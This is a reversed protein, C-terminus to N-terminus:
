DKWPERCPEGSEYLTLRRRLNTLLGDRGRQEAEALARRQREVAEDFRGLEAYAMALTEAHELSERERLVQTALEVARTGDRGEDVPCTALVRALLHRLELDGPLGRLSEELGRRATACRDGSLLAMARGFHAEAFGPELELFRTYEAAAEAYRDARDLARALKLRAHPNMPDEAILEEFRAFSEDGRGVMGLASALELRGDTGQPDLDVALQLHRVASELQGLRKLEVGLHFHADRLDPALAVAERFARIAEDSSALEAALTGYGLFFQPDRLGRRGAVRFEELAGAADDASQLASTLGLIVQVEGPDADLARRYLAIAEEFDGRRLARTAQLHDTALAAMSEQLPDPFVPAEFGRRRLHSRAKDLKGLQRYARGLHGHVVDARPQLDLATEFHEAAAEADDQAAAVRGLGFHAAASYADLTLARDFSERAAEALEDALQMEGLRLLAPLTEPALELTAEFATTAESLRGEQTHTLALFYTWREDDPALAGANAFSAAAAEYLGSAFCLGGGAGFAEALEAPPTTTDALLRDLLDNHETLRARVQPSLDGGDPVPVPLLDPRETSAALHAAVVASAAM